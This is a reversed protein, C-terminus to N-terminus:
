PILVQRRGDRDGRQWAQEVEALPVEEVAIKIAGAAAFRCLKGFAKLRVEHPAFGGSGSLTVRASRLAAAPLEVTAGALDGVQVIRTERAVPKFEHQTLAALLAAMPPGWLYDVVVQFGDEGAAAAFAPILKDKPLDLPILADAGLDTLSELAQRDRGAAVVRGAGLLRGLQIALRGCVGTAGLVLVTDGEALQGRWVLPLYAAMGPNIFAAAEADSLGSPLPARTWTPVVTRQAMSGFPTRPLAFYYRGGDPGIGVGDLGCVLPLDAANGSTYHEGTARARDVRHLAAARVEILSEGDGAEPDSFEAFRPPEGFASLVAAHM